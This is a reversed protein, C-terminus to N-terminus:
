SIRIRRFPRNYPVKTHYNHAGYIINGKGESVDAAFPERHYDDTAEDYLTGNEAIFEEVFPNQCATYRSQYTKKIGHKAKRKQDKLGQAFNNLSLGREM